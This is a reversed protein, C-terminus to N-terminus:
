KPSILTKIDFTKIPKVTEEKVNKYLSKADREDQEKKLQAKINVEEVIAQCQAIESLEHPTYPGDPKTQELLKCKSILENRHTAFNAHKIDNLNVKSALVTHYGAIGKSVGSIIKSTDIDDGMLGEQIDNQAAYLNQAGQAAMVATQGYQAATEGYGLMKEGYGLATSGVNKLMSWGGGVKSMIYGSNAQFLSAMKPGYGTLLHSYIGAATLTPATALISGVIAVVSALAVAKGGHDYFFQKWTRNKPAARGSKTGSKRGSKTGSKRGSKTGSKRGSNRASRTGEMKAIFEQKQEEPWTEFDYPLQRKNLRPSNKQQVEVVPEEQWPKMRLSVGHQRMTAIYEQKQVEPWTEFDDPLQVVPEQEKEVVGQRPNIRPSYGHQRMTAIYQQKLDEPWGDFDNPVQTAERPKMRPSYGHLRMIKNYQQEQDEPWRFDGM